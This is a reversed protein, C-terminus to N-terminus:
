KPLGRTSFINELTLSASKHWSLRQVTQNGRLILQQRLHEDSLLATLAACTQTVSYPNVAVAAGGCVELMSSNAAVLAPTGCAMAELPPFGFGELLSPYALVSAASLWLAREAPAIQDVFHIRDHQLSRKAQAIIGQWLWGRPGAIVLGVDRFEPGLREFASIICEINKRPEVTGLVFIFREPLQHAVRFRDIADQGPRVLEPDVGSHVTVVREPSIGYLGIIDRRTSESVAIVRDAAKVQTRPRMQIQHWFQRGASFLEPFREFSLDHMTLVRRCDPSTAGLLFHPFFFIDTGGVIRDLYPRGTLRTWAWLLRNSMGSEYVSVNSADMWPRRVLANRGAYFLKYRVGTDLPVMHELLRETYEEVGSTRLTGLVRIDIGITLPM